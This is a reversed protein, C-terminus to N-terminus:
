DFWKVGRYLADINIYEGSIAKFFVSSVSTVTNPPEPSERGGRPARARRGRNDSVRQTAGGPSTSAMQPRHAPDALDVRDLGIQTVRIRHRRRHVIGIGHDIQHPNQELTAALAKVGHM